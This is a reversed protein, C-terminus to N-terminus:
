MGCQSVLRGRFSNQAGAYLLRLYKPRLYKPGSFFGSFGALRLSDRFGLGM